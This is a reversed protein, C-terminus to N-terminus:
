FAEVTLCRNRFSELRPALSSWWANLQGSTVEHWEDVVAIPFGLRVYDHFLPYPGCQVIPVTLVFLAESVRATHIGDGLPAMLFRYKSLEFYWADQDIKRSEVGIQMAYATKIWQSLASRSIDAAVSGRARGHLHVEHERIFSSTNSIGSVNGM